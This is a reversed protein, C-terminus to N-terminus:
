LAPTYVGIMFTPAGAHMFRSRGLNAFNRRAKGLRCRCNQENELDITVVFRQGVVRKVRGIWM